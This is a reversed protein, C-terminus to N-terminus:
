EEQNLYPSEFEEVFLGMKEIEKITSGSPKKISGIYMYFDWGFHVYMDNIEFKCGIKNRLILQIIYAIREKNVYTNNILEIKDDTIVKKRIKGNKVLLSIRLSDISLDEMFLLVAQIYANETKLYEELTFEKGEFKRGIESYCTWEDKLYAGRDDRFQPNYKTIRWGFM